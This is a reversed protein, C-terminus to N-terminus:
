IIYIYIYITFWYTYIYQVHTYSTTAIIYSRYWATNKYPVWSCEGSKSLHSLSLKLNGILCLPSHFPLHMSLGYTELTENYWRILQTEDLKRMRTATKKGPSPFSWLHAREARKNGGACCRRHATREHLLALCGSSIAKSWLQTQRWPGLVIWLVIIFIYIMSQCACAHRACMCLMDCSGAFAGSSFAAISAVLWYPRYGLHLRHCLELGM